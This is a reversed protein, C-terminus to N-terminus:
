AVTPWQRSPIKDTKTHCSSSSRVVCPCQSRRIYLILILLKYRYSVICYLVTYKNLPLSVVHSPLKLLLVLLLTRSRSSVLYNLCLSVAVTTHVTDTDTTHLVWESDNVAMMSCCTKATFSKLAHCSFV